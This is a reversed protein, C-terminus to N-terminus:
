LYKRRAFRIIKARDETSLQVSPCVCATKPRDTLERVLTRSLTHSAEETLTPLLAALEAAVTAITHTKARAPM